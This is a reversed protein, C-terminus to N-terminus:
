GRFFYPALSRQFEQELQQESTGNVAEFCAQYIREFIAVIAPDFHSGADKRIIAMSRETDFAKKYPREPTLADFVDAM